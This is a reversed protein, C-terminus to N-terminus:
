MSDYKNKVATKLQATTREPLGAQTRLINIEDLVVFSFAKLLKDFKKEIDSWDDNTFLQGDVYIERGLAEPIETVDSVEYSAKVVQGVKEEVTLGTLMFLCLLCVLLKM